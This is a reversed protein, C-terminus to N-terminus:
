VGEQAPQAPRAAILHLIAEELSAGAIALHTIEIPQAFLARLVAELQATLLSVQHGSQVLQHIPLREVLSSPLPASVDFSVRYTSVQAKLEAPAADARVQGHDILIVREALVDAEELYHTTLVITTGQGAFDRMQEWFRHRAEVDLGATPEDLFLVDPDGCIALAFYLRQREGGSLTGVQARAKEELGAM